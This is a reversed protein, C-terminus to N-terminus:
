RSLYKEFFILETIGSDSWYQSFDCVLFGCNQELNRSESADIRYDRIRAFIVFKFNVNRFRNPLRPIKIPLGPIKLLVAM